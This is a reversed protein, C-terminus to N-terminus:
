AIRKDVQGGSKEEMRYDIPYAEANSLDPLLHDRQIRDEDTTQFLLDPKRGPFRRYRPRLQDADVVPM